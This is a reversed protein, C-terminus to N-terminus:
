AQSIRKFQFFVTPRLLSVFSLSTFVERLKAENYESPRWKVPAHDNITALQKSLEVESWGAVLKKAVAESTFTKGDVECTISGESAANFMDELTPFQAMLRKAWTEGIGPCGDINDGKDGALAKFEIVRRPPGGWRESVADADWVVDPGRAHPNRDANITYIDDTVCQHMDYDGSYIGVPTAGGKALTRALTGMTDDAEWGPSSAQRIGTHSLVGQLIRMQDDMTEFFVNAEKDADARLKARGSKYAPSLARREGAGGEWCVILVCDSTAHDDHISLLAKMFGYIAGTPIGSPTSDATLGKMMSAVRFLLHKGDILLSSFKM